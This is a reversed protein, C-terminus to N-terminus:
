RDQLRAPPADVGQERELESWRSYAAEAEEDFGIREAALALGSVAGIDDPALRTANRYAVYADSMNGRETELEGITMWVRHERRDLQAHKKPYSKGTERERDELAKRNKGIIERAEDLHGVASNVNGAKAYIEAAQQRLAVNNRHSRVALHIERAAENFRGESALEAARSGPDPPKPAACITTLM